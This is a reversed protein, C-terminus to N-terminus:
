RFENKLFLTTFHKIRTRKISIRLLSNKMDIAQVRTCECASVRQNKKERNILIKNNRAHNCRLTTRSSFVFSELAM